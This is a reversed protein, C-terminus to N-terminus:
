RFIKFADLRVLDNYLAYVMLMMLLVFGVQQAMERKRSSLPRGLIAEIIFFLLHGGDLMPVPLLNLVALNV